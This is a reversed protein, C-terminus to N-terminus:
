DVGFHDDILNIADPKLYFDGRTGTEFQFELWTEREMKKPNFKVPEGCPLHGTEEVTRRIAAEIAEGERQRAQGEDGLGFILDIQDDSYGKARMAAIRANQDITM